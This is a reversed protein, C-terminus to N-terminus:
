PSRARGSSTRGKGRSAAFRTLAEILAESTANRELFERAGARMAAVITPPHNMEGVAFIAIESTNAQILEITSIARQANGAEIDVVVVETRVDQMQRLVPDTPSTPFGLHSFVNRGMGTGELRHQLVSLRERDETLLTVAVGQM